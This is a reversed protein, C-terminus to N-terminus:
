RVRVVAGYGESTEDMRDTVTHVCAILQGDPSPLLPPGCKEDDRILYRGGDWARWGGFRADAAVDTGAPGESASATRTSAIVTGDLRVTTTGRSTEFTITDNGEWRLPHRADEVLDLTGGASSLDESGRGALAIAAAGCVVLDLLVLLVTQRSM